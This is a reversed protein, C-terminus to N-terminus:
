TNVGVISMYHFSLYIRHVRTTCVSFYFIQEYEPKVWFPGASFMSCCHFLFVLKRVDAHDKVGEGHRLQGCKASVGRGRQLRGKHVVGMVLCTILSLHQGISWVFSFICCSHWALHMSKRSSCLVDRNLLWSYVFWGSNREVRSLTGMSVMVCDVGWSTEMAVVPGTGELKGIEEKFKQIEEKIVKLQANLQQM